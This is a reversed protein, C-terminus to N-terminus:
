WGNNWRSSLCNEKYPIQSAFGTMISSKFYDRLTMGKHYEADQMFGQFEHKDKFIPFAQGGTDKLM